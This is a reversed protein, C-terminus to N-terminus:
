TADPLNKTTRGDTRPTVLTVQPSNSARTRYETMCEPCYYEESEEHGKQGPVVVHFVAGCYTCTQDREDKLYGYNTETYSPM